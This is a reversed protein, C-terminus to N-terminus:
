DDELILRAAIRILKSRRERRKQEAEIAEVMMAVRAARAEADKARSHELQQEHARLAKRCADLDSLLASWDVQYAQKPASKPLRHEAIVERVPEPRPGDFADELMDRLAVKDLEDKSRDRDPRPKVRKKIEDPWADAGRVPTDVVPPVIGSGDSWQRLLSTVYFM